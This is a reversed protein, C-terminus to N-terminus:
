NHSIKMRSLPTPAPAPSSGPPVTSLFTPSFYIAPPLRDFITISESPPLPSSLSSCLFISAVFKVHSSVYLKNTSLDLCLYASQTLSYDLFVCQVSRPALKHKSYPGLWLYCLCGFVRLKTYNPVTGFLREYPSSLKLTPNPMRNILYVATAFAYTWYTLPLSAHSLLSLSTEVIHRHCRKSYGNHEPTHPRTNLHSIGNIALFNDLAQYGGGGGGVGNDSYLTIIRQNFVDAVNSKRKLPYLWKYKTHHDVFIADCKFGDVSPVPSTM